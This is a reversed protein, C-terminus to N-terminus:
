GARLPRLRSDIQQILSPETGYLLRAAQAADRLSDWVTIPQGIRILAFRGRCGEALLRGVESRYAEWEEAFPSGPEAPPLDVRPAEQGVDPEPPAESRLQELAQRHLREVLERGTETMTDRTM